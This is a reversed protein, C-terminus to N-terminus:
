RELYGVDHLVVALKAELDQQRAYGRDTIRALYERVRTLELEPSARDDPEPLVFGRRKKGSASSSGLGLSFRAKKSKDNPPRRPAQLPV